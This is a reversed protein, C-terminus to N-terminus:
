PPRAKRRGSELRMGFFQQLNWPEMADTANGGRGTLSAVAHAGTGLGGRKLTSAEVTATAGFHDTTSPSDSEELRIPATAAAGAEEPEPRLAADLSHWRGRPIVTGRLVTNVTTTGGPKRSGRTIGIRVTVPTTVQCPHFVTVGSGGTNHDERRHIGIYSANYAMRVAREARHSRRRQRLMWGCTMLEQKTELM